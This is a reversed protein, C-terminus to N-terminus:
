GRKEDETQTGERTAKVARTLWLFTNHFAIEEFPSTCERRLKGQVENLAELRGERRGRELAAQVSEGHETVQDALARHAEDALLLRQRNRALERDRTLIVESMLAHITEVGAGANVRDYGRKIAETYLDKIAATSLVSAQEDSPDGHGVILRIVEDLFDSTPPFVTEDDTLLATLMRLAADGQVCLEHSPDVPDCCIWEREVRQTAVKLLRESILRRLAAVDLEDYVADEESSWDGQDPGNLPTAPAAVVETTIERLVPDNLVAVLREAAVRADVVAEATDRHVDVSLHQQSALGHPWRDPDAMLALAWDQTYECGEDRPDSCRWGRTGAVLVPSQGSHQPNGCTFPHVFPHCQFRNLTRVTEADWPATIVDPEAAVFTVDIAVTDKPVDLLLAVVEVAMSRAEGRTSGQTVGTCGAPLGHITVVYQTGDWTATAEFRRKIESV